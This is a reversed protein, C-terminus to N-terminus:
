YFRIARFASSKLLMALTDMKLLLLLGRQANRESRADKAASLWGGIAKKKLRQIAKGRLTNLRVWRRVSELALRRLMKNLIPELKEAAKPANKMIRTQM